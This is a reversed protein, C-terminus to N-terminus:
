ASPRGRALAAEIQKEAVLWDQVEHGPEFNRQLALYYAAEAIMSQRQDGTVAAAARAIVANARREPSASHTASARRASRGSSKQTRDSM